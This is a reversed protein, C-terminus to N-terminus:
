ATAGRRRLLVLAGGALMLALGGAAVPLSNNGTYPLAGTGGDPDLDDPIGDGDSDVPPRPPEPPEPPEEPNMTFTFPDSPVGPGEGNVPRIMMTYTMGPQLIFVSIPPQGPITIVPGSQAPRLPIWTIGDDITYEWNNIPDGGDDGPVITLTISVPGPDVIVSTPASPKSVSTVTVPASAAGPGVLNFSRVRISAPVGDTLGAVVAEFSTPNEPDDAFGDYDTWAGGDVSVEHGLIPAGGDAGPTFRVTAFGGGASHSDITPADPVTSPCLFTGESAEGAGVANFARIVVSYTTGNVLPGSLDGGTGYTVAPSFESWTVGGDLSYEHNNIPSGGDDGVTFTVSATGDGPTVVVNTPADPVTRVWTPEAVPTVNVAGSSASVGADNVARLEIAIQVGNTLGGLVVPSSSQAPSFPTWAGDDIRYEYNTIASGNDSPEIFAVTVGGDDGAPLLSTPADPVTFPTVAVAESADGNGLGNVARLVVLYTTGNTLGDFTAVGSTVAPSFATWSLGGDFSYEHNTIASGGDAGLTFIIAASCDCANVWLNTPADPRTPGPVPTVSVASSAAGAGAANIARLRVSASVNNALGPVIVPSSLEAPSFATWSGAGVSYEYNTIAAGNDDGPVFAVTAEGDGATAVLGTPAAPVTFPTFVVPESAPSFGIANVARLLLEYRTGNTLSNLTFSGTTDAPELSTWFRGGDLSYAHNSLPLGGDAGLTFTVSVTGDGPTAVLDTPADPLTPGPVPTVDVASSEAGAGAANVARLRISASVSNALGAVTVPSSTEAPSFATWAGSDVSYEYNTIPSGGTSPLAFTISAEGDGATAVLGTPASPVTRPTVDLANSPPSAGNPNTAYVEVSYSQGNTLGTIECTTTPASATCTAGGPSAVATYATADGVANWSVDARGDGPTAATAVPAQPPLVAQQLQAETLAINSWVKLDYVRGSPTGENKNAATVTDDFFFGLISGAGSAAPLSGGTTDTYVFLKTLKKDPGVGYVTFTGSRGGTSERVTVLDLVRDRGYTAASTAGGPYFKLKGNQFYFGDDTTRNVYDIIKSYGTDSQSVSSFSFKLAMTYTSGVPADTVLRMGGGVKATSTWTWYDGEIDTGFGNSSNCPLNTGAPCNPVGAMTGGGTSSTLDGAFAFSLTPPPVVVAGSPLMPFLAVMLTTVAALAVMLRRSRPMRSRIMMLVELHPGDSVPSHVSDM